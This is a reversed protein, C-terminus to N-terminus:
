KVVYLADLDSIPHENVSMLGMDSGTLFASSHACDEAVTDAPCDKSYTSGDTYFMEGFIFFSSADYSHHCLHSSCALLSAKHQTNEKLRKSNGIM